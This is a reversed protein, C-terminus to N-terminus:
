GVIVLCSIVPLLVRRAFLVRLLRRLLTLMTLMRILRRLRLLKVPRTVCLLVLRLGCCFVWARRRVWLRLPLSLWWCFRRCLSLCVIRMRWLRRWLRRGASIRLLLMIFRVLIRLIRVMSVLFWVRWCFWTLRVLRLRRSLRGLLRRRRGSRLIRSMRIM